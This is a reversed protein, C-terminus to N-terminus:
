VTFSAAFLTDSKREYGHMMRMENLQLHFHKRLFSVMEENEMRFVSCTIYVLTGGKAIHPVVNSIIRRQLLSYKKIKSEDFFMLQEPNRGWTGSGTCPLDAIVLDADPFTERVGEEALDCVFSEYNKIGARAFRKNLNALISERVDTVTLDLSGLADVAMISKGGSAACCDWLHFKKTQRINKLLFGTEQSSLDQIVADQDLNIVDELKSANNLALAQPSVERFPIAAETLKYRTSVERGPRMRLFLDPQVFFSENFKRFDVGDSLHEKWPFVPEFSLYEIKEPVTMGAYECWEPKLQRLLDDPGTSCMFYGTIIRETLEAEPMAKGTRFFCYCLHSITKRDRSGYKKNAAFFQKIYAPFPQEGKYKLLIDRASNVYSFYRSM